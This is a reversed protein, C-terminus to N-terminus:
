FPVEVRVQRGNRGLVFLDAPQERVEFGVIKQAVRQDYHRPVMSFGKSIVALFRVADEQILFRQTHREDNM